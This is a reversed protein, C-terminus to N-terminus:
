KEPAGADIWARVKQLEDTSLQGLHDGPTQIMILLSNASDGPIIVTGNQSGKMANEFTDLSLEAVTGHCTVCRQQFLPAVYADWTLAAAPKQTATPVLTPLPTPTQPVYVPLLDPQAPMTTIATQEGSVFGYVAALMIVALVGAVPYYVRQRKRLVDPDLPREAAGTKIDALELPHEHLMEEETLYGTWMAKNFHKLHVSYMHWVIVALVALVAEAGHAAKAAPIFEGPLLRSTALPNWMMFGTLGMIITGWVLAWYELKEEFTYRGMQPRTKAIGLNYKFTQWGDQIDQLTPLMTMRARKVYFKYGFSLLHYMTVLMLVTAAIHHINRTTEIGGFLNVIFISVRNAPYRQPLGTVGLMTFSVLMALHEIRQALAFRLYTRSTKNM